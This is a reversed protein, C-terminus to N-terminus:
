EGKRRVLASGFGTLTVRRISATKPDVYTLTRSVPSLNVALILTQAGTRRAAVAVAPDAVVGLDVPAGRVWDPYWANVLREAGRLYSWLRANTQPVSGHGLHWVCGVAGRLIAYRVLSNLEDPTRYRGREPLSAGVWAILPRGQAAAEVRDFTEKASLLPNPGYSLAFELVDCVAAYDRVVELRDVQVSFLRNKFRAKLERLRAAYFSVNDAVPVAEDAGDAAVAVPIQAEYALRAIELPHKWAALNAEAGFLPLSPDYRYYLRGAKRWYRSRFASVFAIPGSVDQSGTLLFIPRAREQAADVTLVGRDLRLSQAVPQRDGVDASPEVVEFQCSTRLGREEVEFAYEGPALGAVTLTGDVARRGSFALADTALNRLAIQPHVFDKARYAIAVEGAAYYFRDLELWSPDGGDYDLVIRPATGVGAADFGVDDRRIGKHAREGTCFRADVAYTVHLVGNTTRSVAEVAVGAPPEGFVLRGYRLALGSRWRYPGVAFEFDRSEGQRPPAEGFAGFPLMFEVGWHDAGFFPRTTCPKAFGAWPEHNRATYVLNSPNVSIQYEDEPRAPDPRVFVEITADGCAFMSIPRAAVGKAQPRAGPALFERLRVVVAAGRWTVELDIRRPPLKGRNTRFLGSVAPVDPLLRLEPACDGCAGRGAGPVLAALALLVALRGYLRHM